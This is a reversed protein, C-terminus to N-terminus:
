REPNEGPTAGPETDRVSTIVSGLLALVAIGLGAFLFNGGGQSVPLGTQIAVLILVISFLLADTSLSM